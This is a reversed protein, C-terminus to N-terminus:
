AEIKRVFDGIVPALTSAIQENQTRSNNSVVFILHDRTEMGAVQLNNWAAEYIPDGASRLVAGAGSAPFAEDNKKTVILSVIETQRRLILHIFERKQYRCRHGVVITYEEPLKTQVAAVLGQYEPGLRESMQEPTFQKDAMDHDIACFVHDEFGVKLIQGTKDGASVDATLSLPRPSSSNTRAPRYFVGLAIAGLLVAAAAALMWPTNLANIRFSPRRTRRIDNRIRARLESPAQESTVARKLQLKLRASDDLLRACEECSQLHKLVEHNTEVLLENNLYSDLYTRVKRCQSGEFGIVNM